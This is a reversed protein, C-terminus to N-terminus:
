PYRLTQNTKLSGSVTVSVPRKTTEREGRVAKMCYNNFTKANRVFSTFYLYMIQDVDRFRYVVHSELATVTRVAISTFYLYM